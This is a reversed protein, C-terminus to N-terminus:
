TGAPKALRQSQCPHSVIAKVQEIGFRRELHAIVAKLDAPHQYRRSDANTVGHVQQESKSQRSVIAQRSCLSQNPLADKEPLIEDM